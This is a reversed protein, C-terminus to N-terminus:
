VLPADLRHSWGASALPGVMKRGLSRGGHKGAHFSRCPFAAGVGGKSRGEPPEGYSSATPLVEHHEQGPECAPAVIAEHEPEHNPGGQVLTVRPHRFRWSSSSSCGFVCTAATGRASAHLPKLGELTEPNLLRISGLIPLLPMRSPSLEDRCYRRRRNGEPSPPPQRYGSTM